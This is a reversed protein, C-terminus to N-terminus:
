SSHMFNKVKIEKLLGRPSIFYPAFNLFYQSVAIEKFYKRDNLAMKKSDKRRCDPTNISFNINPSFVM